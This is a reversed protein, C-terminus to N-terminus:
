YKVEAQFASRTQCFSFFNSGYWNEMTFLVNLYWVPIHPILIALKKERLRYPIEVPAFFRKFDLLPMTKRITKRAPSQMKVAGTDDQTAFLLACYM